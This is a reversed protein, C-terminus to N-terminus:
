DSMQSRVDSTEVAGNGRNLQVEQASKLGPEGESMAEVGRGVDDGDASSLAVAPLPFRPDSFVAERWREHVRRLFAPSAQAVRPFDQIREYPRCADILARTNYPRKPDTLLPDVRSGWTKRMIEIDEGPECRTSVAWMVEELNTPDVDHDVVIVFRNM